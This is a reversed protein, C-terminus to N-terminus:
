NTLSAPKAGMRLAVIRVTLLKAAAEDNDLVIKTNISGACGGDLWANIGSTFDSSLGGRKKFANYIETVVVNATRCDERSLAEQAAAPFALAHAGIVATTALAAARNGFSRFPSLAM